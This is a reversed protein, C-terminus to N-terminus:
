SALIQNGATVRAWLRAPPLLRSKRIFLFSVASEHCSCGCAQVVSRCTRMARRLKQIRANEYSAEAANPALTAIAIIPMEHERVAISVLVPHLGSLSLHNCSFVVVDWRHLGSRGNKALVHSIPITRESAAHLFSWV